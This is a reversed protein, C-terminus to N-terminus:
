LLRLCSIASSHSYKPPTAPGVKETLPSEYKIWSSHLLWFWPQTPKGGAGGHLEAAEVRHKTFGEVYTTSRCVSIGPPAVPVGGPAIISTSASQLRPSKTVPPPNPNAGPRETKSDFGTKSGEVRFGMPHIAPKLVVASIEATGNARPDTEATQM